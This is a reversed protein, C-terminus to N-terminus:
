DITDYIKSIIKQIFIHITKLLNTIITSLFAFLSAFFLSYLINYNFMSYILIVWFTMCLSCEFPKFDFDKYPIKKNFLKWIFKKISSVIGSIDIIFSVIFSIILLDLM